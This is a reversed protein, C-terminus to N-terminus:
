IQKAAESIRKDNFDPKKGFVKEIHSSIQERYKKIDTRDFKGAGENTEIIPEVAWELYTM